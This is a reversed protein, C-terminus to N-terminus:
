QLILKIKCRSFTETPTNNSYPYKNEFPIVISKMCETTHLHMVFLLFHSEFAGEVFNVKLICHKIEPM